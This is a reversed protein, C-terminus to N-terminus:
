NSQLSFSRFIKQKNKPSLTIVAFQNFFRKPQIMNQEEQFQQQGWAFKLRSGVKCLAWGKLKRRKQYNKSVSNIWSDVFISLISIHIPSVQINIDIWCTLIYLTNTDVWDTKTCRLYKYGTIPNLNKLVPERRKYRVLWCCTRGDGAIPNLIKLDSVANSGYVWLSCLSFYFSRLSFFFFFPWLRLFVFFVLFFFFFFFFLDFQLPFCFIVPDLVLFMFSLSQQEGTRKEIRLEDRTRWPKLFIILVIVFLLFPNASYQPM